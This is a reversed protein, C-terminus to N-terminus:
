DTVISEYAVLLVEYKSNLRPVNHGQARYAKLKAQLQRYSLKPTATHIPTIQPAKATPKPATKTEVEAPCFLVWVKELGAALVAAFVDHNGVVKFSDAGTQVVLVPTWNRGNIIHQPNPTANVTCTVEETYIHLLRGLQQLM